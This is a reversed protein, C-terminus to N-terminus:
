PSVLVDDPHVVSLGLIGRVEDPNAGSKVGVEFTGVGTAVHELNYDVAGEDMLVKVLVPCEGLPSGATYASWDAPNAFLTAAPGVHIKVYCGKHGTVLDTFTYTEAGGVQCGAGDLVADQKGPGAGDLRGADMWTTLGPVKVMIAIRNAAVGGPGPAAYAFDDLTIGDIRLTLETQGAVVIPPPTTSHTFSADLCRIYSRVGAATSYDPQAATIHTVTEPFHGTSYDLQPYQLVGASPFPMTAAASIPPNRDPLGAVQLSSSTDLDVLHQEMLLWSCEDWPTTALSIRVPTEIPGGGWGGMGPGDLHATTDV